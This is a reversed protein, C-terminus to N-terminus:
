PKLQARCPCVYGGLNAAPTAQLKRGVAKSYDCRSLTATLQRPSIGHGFDGDLAGVVQTAIGGPLFGLLQSLAQGTFVVYTVAPIAVAQLELAATSIAPNFHMFVAHAHLEAQPQ